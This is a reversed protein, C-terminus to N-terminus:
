RAFDTWEPPVPRVTRKYVHVMFSTAFLPMLLNVLPIAGLAAILLGCVFVKGSNAQRAARAEERGLYRRAAANFFERGLLYGNGVLFAVLNVVPVLLLLLAIANVVLVVAAFGIADGVAEGVPLDRGPPDFSYHVHEVAGAVEDSYLGAFLAAVPMVLFALGVLLALGAFLNLLTELWPYSGLDVAWSLLLTLGLWLGALLLLTLGLSKLMVSRFAPSFIDSLALRACTLV